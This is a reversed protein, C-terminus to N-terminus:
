EWRIERIVEIEEYFREFFRECLLNFSFCNYSTQDQKAKIVLFISWFVAVFDEEAVWFLRFVGCRFIAKYHM